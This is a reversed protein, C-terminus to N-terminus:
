LSTGQPTTRSGVEVWRRLKEISSRDFIVSDQVFVL